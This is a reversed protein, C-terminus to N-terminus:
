SLNGKTVEHLVDPQTLVYHHVPATTTCRYATLPYGYTENSLGLSRTPCNVCCQGCNQCNEPYALVSKGEEPAFYFVDMPCVDVCNRCGICKDLDVRIVSM